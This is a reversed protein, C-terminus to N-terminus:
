LSLNEEKLNNKRIYSIEKKIVKWMYERLIPYKKMLYRMQNNVGRKWMFSVDVMKETPYNSHVLFSRGNAVIYTERIDQTFKVEALECEEVEKCFRDLAGVFSKIYIKSPVITEDKLMLDIARIEILGIRGKDILRSRQDLLEIVKKIKM